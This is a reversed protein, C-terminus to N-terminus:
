DHGGVGVGKALQGAIIKNVGSQVFGRAARVANTIARRDSRGHCIMMVGNVGLLPAGGYESYDLKQFIGKFVPKIKDGLDPIAAMLSKSFIGVLGETLGEVVKLAINGVFGDCVVVNAVRGSVLDRGEVNGGFNLFPDAKILERAKHVLPNGKEDEEGVSLLGVRPELGLVGKAYVSGMLAYEYLHHPKAISNAGADCMVTPGGGFSPLVIAIGPRSVGPITGLGLQCAAACAGTNGASIVADVKGAAHMEVMRVISSDKKHRLAEVPEEDMAIVQSTAEIHIRSAHGDVSVLEKEIAQRDGILVLEDDPGLFALGDVAGRIIECPAHDGGMADVAIRM